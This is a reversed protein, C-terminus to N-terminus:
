YVKRRWEEEEEEEDTERVREERERGRESAREGQYFHQTNL